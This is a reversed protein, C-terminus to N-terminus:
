LVLEMMFLDPNHIFDWFYKHAGEIDSFQEFYLKKGHKCTLKDPFMKRTAVATFVFVDNGFTRVEVFYDGGVNFIASLSFIDDDYLALLELIDM